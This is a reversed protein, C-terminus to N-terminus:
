PIRLRYWASPANTPVLVSISHTTSTPLFAVFNTWAMPLLEATQEVTNTILGNANAITLTLQGADFELFELIPPPSADLRVHDFNVEIGPEAMTGAQNLNILRIELLEGVGPHSADIEVLQVSTRHEADPIEDALSNDDRMVLNTGAWLEVRYGPFGFLNFYGAQDSPPLGTGSGINGIGVSLTYILDAQLTDGLVQSLGAEMGHTGAVSLFVIGFQNGDPPSQSYYTTGEPYILGISNAGGNLIGFPDYAQWSAPYGATVDFNGPIVADVEFSPNAVPIPAALAPLALLVSLFLYPRPRM